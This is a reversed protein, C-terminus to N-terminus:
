MVFSSICESVKGDFSEMLDSLWCCLPADSGNLALGWTGEVKGGDTSPVLRANIIISYAPTQHVLGTCIVTGGVLGALSPHEESSHGKGARCGEGDEM